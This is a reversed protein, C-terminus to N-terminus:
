LRKDGEERVWEDLNMIHIHVRSIQLARPGELNFNMPKFSRHNTTKKSRLSKIRPFYLNKGMMVKQLMLFDTTWVPLQNQIFRRKRKHNKKILVWRAKKKSIKTKRMRPVKMTKNKTRNGRLTSSANSDRLFRTMSRLAKRPLCLIPDVKSICCIILVRLRPSDIPLSLFRSNTELNQSKMSQMKYRSRVKLTLPQLLRM